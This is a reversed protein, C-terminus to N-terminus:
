PAGEGDPSVFRVGSLGQIEAMRGLLGGYHDSLWDVHFRDTCELVLVGEDVGRARLKALWNLAYHKGDARLAELMQRWAGAAPTDEAPASSEAAPTGPLPQEGRPEPDITWEGGLLKEAWTYGDRTTGVLLKVVTARQGSSLEGRCVNSRPVLAFAKFWEELPRRELATLADRLLKASTREGWPAFGHPAALENWGNRLAQVEPPLTDPTRHERPKERQSDRANATVLVLTGRAEASSPPPPLLTEISRNKEEKRRTVSPTVSDRQGTVSRKRARENQKRVTALAQEREKGTPPTVSATVSDRQEPRSPAHRPAPAEVQRGSLFLAVAERFGELKAEVRARALRELELQARLELVEQPMSACTM